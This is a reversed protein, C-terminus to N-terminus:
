CVRVDRWVWRYYRRGRRDYARVRVKRAEYYCRPYSYSLWWAPYRSRHHGYHKGGHHRGGRHGGHKGGGGHGGGGGKGAFADTAGFAMLSVAAAAILTKKLMSAELLARFGKPQEETKCATKPPRAQVSASIRTLGGNVM